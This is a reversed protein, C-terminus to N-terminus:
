GGNRGVAPASPPSWGGDATLVAWNGFIIRGTVALEPDGSGSRTALANALPNWAKNGYVCLEAVGVSKGEGGCPLSDRGGFNRFPLITVHFICSEKGFTQALGM